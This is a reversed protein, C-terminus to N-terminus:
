VQSGLVRVFSTQRDLSELGQSPLLILPIPKNGEPIDLLSWIQCVLDRLCLPGSTPGQPHQNVAAFVGAGGVKNHKHLASAPLSAETVRAALCFLAGM